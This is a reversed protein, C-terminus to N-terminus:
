TRIAPTVSHTGPGAPRSVLPSNIRTSPPTTRDITQASERPSDM